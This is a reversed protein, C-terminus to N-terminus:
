KGIRAAIVIVIRLAPEVHHQREIAGYGSRWCQGASIMQVDRHARRSIRGSAPGHVVDRYLVIARLARRVMPANAVSRWGKDVSWAQAIIGMDASIGIPKVDSGVFEIQSAREEVASLDIRERLM